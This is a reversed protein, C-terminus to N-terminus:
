HLSAYALMRDVKVEFHTKLDNAIEEAYFEIVAKMPWDESIAEQESGSLGPVVLIVGPTQYLSGIKGTYIVRYHGDPFLEVSYSSRGWGARTSSEIAELLDDSKLFTNLAQRMGQIKQQLNDNM